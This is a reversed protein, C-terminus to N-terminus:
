YRAFLYTKLLRRFRDTSSTPNRLYFGPTLELGGPPTPIYSGEKGKRRVM